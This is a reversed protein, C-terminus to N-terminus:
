GAAKEFEGLIPEIPPAHFAQAVPLPETHVGAAAMDAMAKAVADAAGSIVVNEPGNLAAIDVERSYPTLFATVRAPDAFVAAMTGAAAAGSNKPSALAQMLRGREAVLRLGDELSFCGAACAAAYE